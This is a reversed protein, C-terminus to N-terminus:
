HISTTVSKLGVLLNEEILELVYSANLVETLHVDPVIM